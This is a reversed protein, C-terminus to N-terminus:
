NRSPGLVDKPSVRERSLELGSLSIHSGGKKDTVIMVNVYESGPVANRGERFSPEIGPM